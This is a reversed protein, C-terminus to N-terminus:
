WTVSYRQARDLIDRGRLVEGDAEVGETSRPEGAGDVVVEVTLETPQPRPQDLARLVYGDAIDLTGRVDVEVTVSSQPPVDVVLTATHWGLEGDPEANAPAGDIRAGV